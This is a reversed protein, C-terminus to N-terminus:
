LNYQGERITLEFKVYQDIEELIMHNFDNVTNNYVRRGDFIVWDSIEQSDINSKYNLLLLDYTKDTVYTTKIM